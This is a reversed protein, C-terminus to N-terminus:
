EGDVHRVETLAEELRRRLQDPDPSRALGAEQVRTLDETRGMAHYVSALTVLIEEDAPHAAHSGELLSLGEPIMGQEVLRRGVIFSAKLLADDARKMLDRAAETEGLRLLTVYLLTYGDPSKPWSRLLLELVPRAEAWREKVILLQAKFLPPAPEDPFSTMEADLLALADDVRDERAMLTALQLRTGSRDPDVALLERLWREAKDAQDQSMAALALMQLGDARKPWRAHYRSYLEELEAWMKSRAFFDGLLTYAEENDPARRLEAEVLDAGTVFDGQLFARKGKALRLGPAEPDIEEVRSLATDIDALLAEQGDQPTSALQAIRVEVKRLWAPAHDPVLEIAANAARLAKYLMASRLYFGALEVQGSADKVISLARECDPLAFEPVKQAMSLRCREFLASPEAPTRRLARQLAEAAAKHDGSRRLARAQDVDGYSEFTKAHVPRYSGEDGLDHAVPKLQGGLRFALHKGGLTTGGHGPEHRELLAPSLGQARAARSVLLGMSLPSATFRTGETYLAGLMHAPVHPGDASVTIEGARARRTIDDVLRALGAEGQWSQAFPQVSASVEQGHDGADATRAADQRPSFLILAFVALAAIVLLVGILPGVGRRRPARTPAPGGTLPVVDRKRLCSPCRLEAGDSLRFEDDCHPCFFDPM